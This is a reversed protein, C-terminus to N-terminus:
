DNNLQEGGPPGDLRLRWIEILKAFMLGEQRGCLRANPILGWAAGIKCSCGAADPFYSAVVVKLMKMDALCAFPQLVANCDTEAEVIATM